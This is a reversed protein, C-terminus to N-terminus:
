QQTSFANQTVFLLHRPPSSTKTHKGFHQFRCVYQHTQCGGRDVVFVEGGARRLPQSAARANRAPPGACGAAEGFKRARTNILIICRARRNPSTKKPGATARFHRVGPTPAASWLPFVFPDEWRKYACAADFYDRMRLQLRPTSRSIACSISRM